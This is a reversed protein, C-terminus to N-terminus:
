KDRVDIEKLEPDNIIKDLDFYLFLKGETKKEKKWCDLKHLEDVMQAEIEKGKQYMKEGAKKFPSMGEPKKFLEIEIWEEKTNNGYSWKVDEYKKCIDIAQINKYLLVPILTPCMIINEESQNTREFVVQSSLEKENIEEM